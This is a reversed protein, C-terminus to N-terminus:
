RAGNATASPLAAPGSSQNSGPGQNIQRLIRAYHASVLDWHYGSNDRRNCDTHAAVVQNEPLDLDRALKTSGNITGNVKSMSCYVSHVQVEPFKDTLSKYVSTDFSTQQPTTYTADLLAVAKIQPLVSGGSALQNKLIAGIPVNAGSHGSIVWSANRTPQVQDRVWAAFKEFQPVLERKYTTCDGASTPLVMVSNTAGAKKMQHLFNFDNLMADITADRKYPGKATQVVPANRFGHLHLIIQDPHKVNKPILVVVPQSYNLGPTHISPVICIQGIKVLRCEFGPDTLNEYLYTGAEAPPATVMVSLLASTLLISIGSAWKLAGKSHLQVMKKPM